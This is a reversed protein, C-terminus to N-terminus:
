RVLMVREAFREAGVHLLLTYSGADLGNLELWLGQGECNPVLGRAVVQGSAALVQFFAGDPLEDHCRIFVGETAPNPYVTFPDNGLRLVEVVAVHSTTSSGDLDVQRLRYYNTGRLPLDDIADYQVLANSHGVADVRGIVTWNSVDDSREVDFYLNDWESATAWELQVTGNRESRATFSVLDIPLPTIAINTTGLTFRVGDVLATVASFRYLDGGVHTAGSIPIENAMTGDQDTDVVLRLHAPDVNGLGSLDFTIDVAGVDVASAGTTNRESVRWVRELRGQLGDPVDDVGWAGLMGNNHGWFLFENNGLGTPNSIRVIGSGQADNHINSANIRGIGAVEHDFNGRAANDERYIDNASLTLGYKAALYNAIIIRQADNVAVNYAVVEAIDGNWSEAGAQCGIAMDTWSRLTGNTTVSGATGHNVYQDISAARYMTNLVYAQGNALATAMTVNRQTGDSQIGRGWVQTTASSVWMGINKEGPTASYANGSAAGQLLGPNSSPLSTYRAVVWVSAHDATSLGTSLMRDNNAATYRVVPYGNLVNTQLNPRNGATAQTAHRGNGSRDNWQQVNETNAAPTTGANNFVGNEASLWLANNTSNGVGGPGTQGVSLLPFLLAVLLGLSYAKREM